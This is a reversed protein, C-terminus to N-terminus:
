FKTAISAQCLNASPFFSVLRIALKVSNRKEPKSNDNDGVYIRLEQRLSAFYFFNMELDENRFILLCFFAVWNTASVYDVGCPKGTDGPAPQLTVSAPCNTPLQRFPLNSILLHGNADFWHVSYRYLSFLNVQFFFPYANKGLKRILREQLRTLQFKKDDAPPYICKSALYLDTHM